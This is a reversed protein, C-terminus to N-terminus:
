EVPRAMLEKLEEFSDMEPKNTWEFGFDSMPAHYGSPPRIIQFAIDGNWDLSLFMPGVTFGARFSGVSLSFAWDHLGIGIYPMKALLKKIAM